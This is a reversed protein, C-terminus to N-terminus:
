ARRAAVYIGRFLERQSFGTNALEEEFRVWPPIFRAAEQDSLQGCLPKLPALNCFLFEEIRFDAGALAERLRSERIGFDYYRESIRAALPRALRKWMPDHHHGTQFHGSDATLWLLGGPKLVHAIESLFPEPNAVHELVQTSVAIDFTAPAFHKSLAYGSLARLEIPLGLDRALAVGEADSDVAVLRIPMRDLPMDKWLDLPGTGVAGVDIVSVSEQIALLAMQIKAKGTNRSWRM